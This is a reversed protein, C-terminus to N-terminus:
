VHSLCRCHKLSDFNLLNYKQVIHCHHYRNPKQDLTKLTQKYLSEIPKLTTLNTQSWTTFCYTIHSFIMAHMFLKAADTTLYPRIHRFNSLNFKIKNAVNKVHKQFTLNSDLTIGLYKFQSVVQISNGKILIDTDPDTSNRSFFMCVTKNTNLHLCSNRLWDSVHVMAATLKEAALQKNKTHIYLVTDDAYMQISVTPCISPLDNIYLSFLIPGLISGQPVGINCNLYTSQTNGIRVSQKRNVLYSRMWEVTETSFNFFSLKSLLVQHDVTDFAKKLDLFVAGVIGGADLKSKVSELFYCNATETSHNPRFGFQLPHLPNHGSNLHATLQQAVWKEAVKSVVPLISIPRYNSVNSQDGAKFIPTVVAKKWNSPFICQKISLNILQVIPCVLADKHTKLFTTDMNYADKAKSDRLSSMIEVVASETIEGIRFIPKDDNIPTCTWNSSSFSQALEEVSDIFFSNFTNAIVDHDLTLIGNVKLEHERTKQDKNRGTLKNLNEWILKGNGRADEIVKIFFDAKAKRLNRVVKNRLSTFIQRDSSYGTKLSKKLASDRERMQHWLAGNLWPLTNKKRPRYKVNRIFPTVVRNITTVFNRSSSEIDQSCLINSWETLKLARDLNDIENKPIRQHTSKSKTTNDFRKSTLKRVLLTINHDSIGTILNYSKTIREPRNTFMLDIQTQSTNTIRTPGEVLQTLNYKDTIEKLKKRNSKISWNCNLDGFLLLEMKNDCEKLMTELQEYFLSDAKGGMRDRRFLNYGPFNIAAVSSNKKLWTESLGLFDLNSDSLLHELQSQKSVASRINLHGGLLGTPKSKPDWVIKAHNLTKFINTKRYKKIAPNLGKQKQKTPRLASTRTTTQQQYEGGGGGATQPYLRGGGGADAVATVPTTAARVELKDRPSSQAVGLAAM